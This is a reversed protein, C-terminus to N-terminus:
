YNQKRKIDRLPQITIWKPLSNGFEIEIEKTTFVFSFLHHLIELQHIRDLAILCSTDSIIVKNIL